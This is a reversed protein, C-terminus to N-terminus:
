QRRGRPNRPPPSPRTVAGTRMPAVVPALLHLVRTRRRPTDKPEVSDNRRSGARAHICHFVQQADGRSGIPSPQRCAVDPGRHPRHHITRTAARDHRAIGWSAPRSKSSGSVRRTACPTSRLYDSTQIHSHTCNAPTGRGRHHARPDRMAESAARRHKTTHRTLPHTPHTLHGALRVQPSPRLDPHPKCRYDPAESASESVVPKASRVCTTIGRHGHPAGAPTAPLIARLLRM